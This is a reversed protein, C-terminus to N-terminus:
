LDENGYVAVIAIFVIVIHLGSVLLNVKIKTSNIKKLFIGSILSDFFVILGIILALLISIVLAAPKNNLFPELAELALNKTFYIAFLIMWPIIQSLFIFIKSGASLKATM